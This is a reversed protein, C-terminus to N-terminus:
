RFEKIVLRMEAAYDVCGLMAWRLTDFDVVVRHNPGLPRGGM